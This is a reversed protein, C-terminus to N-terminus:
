SFSLPFWGKGDFRLTKGSIGHRGGGIRKLEHLLKQLDLRNSLRSIVKKALNYGLDQGIPVWPRNAGLM